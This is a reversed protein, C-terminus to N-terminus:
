LLDQFVPHYRLRRRLRSRVVRVIDSSMGVEEAVEASTGGFLSLELIRRETKDLSRLLAEVEDQVQATRAPDEAHTEVDTLDKLVQPLEAAPSKGDPEIGRQKCLKQWHHFIKRQVIRVALTILKQPNAVEYRDHRLGSLVAHHVSQVLDGSDLFSRLSHGLLARAVERVQEEYHGALRLGAESDGARARELLNLFEAANNTM